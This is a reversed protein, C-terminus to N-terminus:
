RDERSRPVMGDLITQSNLRLVRGRVVVRGHALVDGRDAVKLAALV